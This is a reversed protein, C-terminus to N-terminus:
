SGKGGAKAKAATASKKRPAAAKAAAAAKRAEEAKAKKEAQMRALQEATPLDDNWLLYVVEEYSAKDALERIDYGRYILEGQEGDIHCVQSTDIAVDALGRHIEAM